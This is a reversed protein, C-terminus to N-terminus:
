EFYIFGFDGTYGAREFIWRWEAPTHFARCTLQWYLLNMKERESRYAEVTIYADAKSVRTIESLASHLEQVYLNHCTNISYVFDFEADEFPLDRANATKLSGCIEDKANDLAYQSIDIGTVHCGPVVQTFEYLLYGKGCGVDLIRSREDLAYRKAMSEAVARWRGDYTYGGYGYKREGDWYDYDWQIAREACESKDAENVRAIYDRTTSTHIQTIFDVEEAM